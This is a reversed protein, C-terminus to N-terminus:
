QLVTTTQQVEPLSRSFCEPLESHLASRAGVAWLSLCGCYCFLFFGWLLSVPM